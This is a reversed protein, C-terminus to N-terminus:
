SRATWVAILASIASLLAIPQELMLSHGCDPIDLTFAEPGLRDVLMRSMERDLSGHEARVVAIPCAAPRVDDLLMPTNRFISPDFHWSYGSGNPRVSNWGVHRELYPAVPHLQPLSKFRDVLAARSPYVRHPRSARARLPATEDLNRKVPSDVVVAGGLEGGHAAAAELTVFGGLSHGVVIPSPGVLRTAAMVEAAWQARHYTDRRDSDGHGSLDLALVRRNEALWPALHDWWRSHAASGHVLVVNRGDGEGWMRYAIRAGDVSIAGASPTVAVARDFWARAPDEESGGSVAVSGGTLTTM